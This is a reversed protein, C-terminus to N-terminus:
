YALQFVIRLTAPFDVPQGSQLAPKFRIQQAARVAAEDLGHGLGSIVRVIRVSGSAPFVVSLVVEGQLGLKRAEETYVPDPKETIVVPQVAAVAETKKARPEEPEAAANAFGGSKVEGRAPASSGAPPVAVGNGFGASAVTGRVGNAGGTGNGYGPGPPLAPSGFRGINARKNPDGPGPLGQPDGFGGTQVKSAPVNVTAPAVSGTSLLGTKVPERPKAPEPLTPELRAATFAQNVQPMDEKRIVVPTVKPPVLTVPAMLKAVRTPPQPIEPLPQAVPAPPPTLPRKPPLLVETQMPALPTVVYQLSTKLQHPFFVPLAILAATVLAQFIVSTALAGRSLKREELMSFRAPVPKEGVMRKWAQPDPQRGAPTFGIGLEHPQTMTSSM